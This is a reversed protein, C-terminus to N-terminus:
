ERQERKRLKEKIRFQIQLEPDHQRKIADIKRNM